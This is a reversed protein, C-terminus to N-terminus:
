EESRTANVRFEGLLGHAFILQQGTLELRRVFPIRNCFDSADLQTLGVAALVAAIEYRHHGGIEISGAVIIMGFVAM